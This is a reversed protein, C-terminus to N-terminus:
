ATMSTMLVGLKLMPWRMRSKSCVKQSNVPGFVGEADVGARGPQVQAHAGGADAGAVQDDGGRERKDGRGVGQEELVGDRNKHIDVGAGAVDVRVPPPHPGSYRSINGV